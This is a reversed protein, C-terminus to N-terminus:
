RVQNWSMGSGTEIYDCAIFISAKFGFKDLIPKATSYITDYGRDFMLIVFKNDNVDSEQNQGEYKTLPIQDFFLSDSDPVNNYHYPITYPTEEIIEYASVTTYPIITSGYVAFYGVVFSLVAFGIFNNM